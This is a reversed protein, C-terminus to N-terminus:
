RDRLYAIMKAMEKLVRKASDLDTVKEDIYKVLGTASMTSWKPVNSIKKKTKAIQILQPQRNSERM